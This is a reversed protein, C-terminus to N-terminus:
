ICKQWAQKFRNILLAIIRYSTHSLPALEDPQLSDYTDWAEGEYDKLGRQSLFLHRVMSPIHSNKELCDALKLMEKSGRASISRFLLPTALVNFHKSALCLTLATKASATCAFKFINLLTETPFPSFPTIHELAANLSFPLERDLDM